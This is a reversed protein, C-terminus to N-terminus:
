KKLLKLPFPLNNKKIGLYNCEKSGFSKYFRALNKDNSGEFDFTLSRQANEQIFHDILFPMAGNKKATANTASFLFIVKNNSQVFFAGACLDKKETYVGWSAGHGRAICYEILNKLIKYEKSKLNSIDKGRNRRFLKIIELPDAKYNVSLGKKTAKTINRLTNVAYYTRLNVYSNILDLEHTLNQKVKFQGEDVTNYKNLNIEVLKYRSPIATIFEEVKEQSFKNVSFVGLQQTFPPQFLYNIGLKKRGTLPMVSKYDDEVLANWGECVIDLYWTYAYINGNFSKRICDDWKTYDIDKNSYYKIM